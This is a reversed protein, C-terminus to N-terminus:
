KEVELLRAELARIEAQALALQAQYQGAVRTSYDKEVLLDSKARDNAKRLDVVRGTQFWAIRGAIILLAALVYIIVFADM